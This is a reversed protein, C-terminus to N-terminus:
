DALMAECEAIKRNTFDDTLLGQEFLQKIQRLRGAVQKKTFKFKFKPKAAAVEPKPEVPPVATVHLVRRPPPEYSPSFVLCKLEQAPVLHRWLFAQMRDEVPVAQHVVERGDITARGEITLRVPKKTELLKTKVTLKTATQGAPLTIPLSSFGPPPDKLDLKVPGMFGDKRIVQVTVAGASKSPLSISSPVALLAFDPEPRSIRLRYAYEEGGHRATDGVHVYYTGDAPLKTMLYSDANHTNTGSGLDECDDNYTLVKGKADTITVLSDLPSDLRRASVAAVITEGRHGTFQFLDWDDPRNIRGNIIVPLTVKQAHAPDNNPEKEFCEPLTDCAFSLPNSLFGNSRAVLSHIGLTAEAAPLHLEGQALNWGTLKVKAPRGARGGLPFISTVFPLEGVTIRYVFDERGRYLADTIAFTYEGDKPVEFLIVPDPKFRYDDDYAMEKGRADYLAMVPQFWGPVADAIFPVLQRAQASLVLRQGKRAQFRYRNMERSAIQGNVTCPLTIQQEVEDDPRNRLATEEKGLIQLSASVMPKRSVEPLQGVHFVLPNSVGRPTSLTLERSGPAADKDITVEVIMLNSISNCAPTNVYETMRREIRAAMERSEQNMKAQPRKLEGLQERLLSHEQPNLRQLYEVVKARVGKGSVFVESEDVM